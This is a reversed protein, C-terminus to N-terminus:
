GCRYRPRCALRPAARGCPLRRVARTVPWASPCPRSRWHWARRGANGARQEAAFAPLLQLRAARMRLPQEPGAGAGLVGGVAVHEIDLFQDAGVGDVGHRRLGHVGEAVMAAHTRAQLLIDARGLLGHGREFCAANGDVRHGGLQGLVAHPAKGIGEVLQEGGDRAFAGLQEAVPEVPWAMARGSGSFGAKSAASSSQRRAPLTRRSHAPSAASQVPSSSFSHSPQSSMTSSSRRRM